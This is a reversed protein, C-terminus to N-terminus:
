PSPPSLRPPAFVWSPLTRGEGCKQGTRERPHRWSAIRDTTGRGPLSEPPGAEAPATVRRPCPFVEPAVAPDRERPVPFHCSLRPGSLPVAPRSSCSGSPLVGHVSPPRRVTMLRLRCAAAKLRESAPHGCARFGQKRIRSHWRPFVAIHFCLSCFTSLTRLGQPRLTGPPPVGPDVPGTAGAHTTPSSIGPTGVTGKAWGSVRIARHADRHRSDDTSRVPNFRDRPPPARL